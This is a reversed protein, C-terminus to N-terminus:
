INGDMPLLTMSISAVLVVIEDVIDHFFKTQNAVKFFRCHVCRWACRIAISIPLV